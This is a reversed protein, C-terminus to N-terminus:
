LRIAALGHSLNTRLFIKKITFTRSGEQVTPLNLTESVFVSSSLMPILVEKALSIGGGAIIVRCRLLSAFAFPVQVPFQLQQDEGATVTFYQNPFTNMFWGDVSQGNLADFLQLQAQGTLEKKQLGSLTVVLELRDGQRLYQPRSIDIRIENSQAEAAVTFLLFLLTVFNRRLKM